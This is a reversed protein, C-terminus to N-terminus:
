REAESQDMQGDGHESTFRRGRLEERLTGRDAQFDYKGGGAWGNATPHIKILVM